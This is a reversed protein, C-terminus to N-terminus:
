FEEIAVDPSKALGFDVVVVRGRAMMVNHVHWDPWYTVGAACMDQYAGMVNLAALLPWKDPHSPAGYKGLHRVAEFLEWSGCFGRLNVGIRLLENKLKPPLQECRENVILYESGVRSVHHVRVLNQGGGTAQLRRVHCATRADEDDGTIKAVKDPGLPFVWAYCGNGLAPENLWGERCAADLMGLRQLTDAAREKAQTLNM